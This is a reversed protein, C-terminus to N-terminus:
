INQPINKEPLITFMFIEHGIRMYVIYIYYTNLTFLAGMNNAIKETKYYM